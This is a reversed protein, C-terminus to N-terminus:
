PGAVFTWQRGGAPRRLAAGTPDFPGPTPLDFALRARGIPAVQVVAAQRMFVFVDIDDRADIGTALISSPATSAGLAARIADGTAYPGFVFLRDWEFPTLERLALQNKAPDRSEAATLRAELEASPAKEARTRCRASTLLVCATLLATLAGERIKM